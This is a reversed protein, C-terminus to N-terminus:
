KRTTLRRVVRRRMVSRRETEIRQLSDYVELLAVYSKSMIDKIPDV